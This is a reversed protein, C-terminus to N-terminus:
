SLEFRPQKGELIETLVNGCEVLEPVLDFLSQGVLNENEDALFFGPDGNIEIVM